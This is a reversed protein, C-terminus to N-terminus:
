LTCTANKEADWSLHCAHLFNLFIHSFQISAVHILVRQCSLPKDRTSPFEGQHFPLIFLKYAPSPISFYLNRERCMRRAKKEESSHKNGLIDWLNLHTDGPLSRVNRLALLPDNISEKFEEAERVEGGRQVLPASKSIVVHVFFFESEKERNLLDCAIGVSQLKSCYYFIFLLNNGQQTWAAPEWTHIFAQIRVVAELLTTHKHQPIESGYCVTPTQTCKMLGSLDCLM